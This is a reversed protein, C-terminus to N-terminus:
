SLLIRSPGGAQRGAPRGPSTPFIVVEAGLQSSAPAQASSPLLLRDLVILSINSSEIRWFTVV